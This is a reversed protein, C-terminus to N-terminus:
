RIAVKHTSASGGAAIAKVIAIGRYGNAFLSNGNSTAIRKGDATFLEMAAVDSGAAFVTGNAAWVKTGNVAVEAVGVNQDIKFAPSIHQVMENGAKDTLTFRIDYWGNSSPISVDALSGRYFYGFGPMYYNEPIEEVELPLFADEGYPAYEVKVEAEDCTYYRNGGTNVWNFDGASFEIIGDEGTQFRDTIVRDTNKFILMQTTPTCLDENREDVKISTINFGPITEDVLVNRNTFTAEIIGKEHGNTSNDYCWDSINDGNFNDFVKVGNINVITELNWQDCNRVEGYRGIYAQPNFTFITTGEYKNIQNMLALIPSSNGIPQTIQDEFYCYAPVGPYEVIPGEEPCQYSFNGCESHNQNIYEWKSGNYLAPLAIMEARVTEYETVIEGDGYDEEWSITKEAQINSIIIPTKLDIADSTPQTAMYIVPNLSKKYMGGGGLQVNDVWILGTVATSFEGIGFEHHLPTKSFNPAEHEIFNEIYNNITDSKAGSIDTTSIQIEDNNDNIFYQFIYHYKDSLKSSLFKTEEGESTVDAFSTGITLMDCGERFLIYSRYQFTSTANTYDIEYWPEEDLDKGVPLLAERGDKLLPKIIIKETLEDYSFIVETDANVSVDEHVLYAFGQMGEVYSFYQANVDYTGAPVKFYYTDTEGSELWIGMRSEEFFDPNYIAFYPMDEGKFVCKVTYLKEDTKRPSNKQSTTGSKKRIEDRMAERQMKDTIEDTSFHFNKMKSKDFVMDKSLIEGHKAFDTQSKKHPIGAMASIMTMLMLASLIHKLQKM